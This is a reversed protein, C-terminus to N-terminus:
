RESARALCLLTLDDSFARSASFRELAILVSRLTETPTRGAASRLSDFLRTRGFLEGDGNAAEHAGDTYLVLRAGTELSLPQADYAADALVGLPLGGGELTEVRDDHRVVVPPDHGASCWEASGSNANLRVIVCTAFEGSGAVVQVLEENMHRLIEAVSRGLRSEYHLVTRLLATHLAAAVGHGSVDLIALLMSGDPLDIVDYLDGGVSDTPRFLAAIECGAHAQALDPLLRSQINAARRLGARRARDARELAAAMQNFGGALARLEDSGTPAVRASLEEREVSRVGAVLGRLPRKVWFRLALGNVAFLMLALAGLSIARSTWQARLIAEVLALSETVVVREGSASIMSAALYRKGAHAFGGSTVASARIMQRELEAEAHLHARAIVNQDQALLVIHHGPSADTRMERCFMDVFHQFEAVDTFHARAALLVGAQEYLREQEIRLHRVRERRADIIGFGLLILVVTGNVLCALRLALSGHWRRPAASEKCRYM